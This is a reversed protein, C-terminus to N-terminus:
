AAPAMATILSEPVPLSIILFSEENRKEKRKEIKGDEKFEEGEKLKSRGYESVGVAEDPSPARM